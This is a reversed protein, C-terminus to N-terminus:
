CTSSSVSKLELEAFHWRSCINLATVLNVTQQSATEQESSQKDTELMAWCSSGTEHATPTALLVRFCALGPPAAGAVCSLQFPATTTPIHLLGHVTASDSVQRPLLGPATQSKGTCLLSPCAPSLGAPPHPTGEAQPTLAPAPHPLARQRRHTGRAVSSSSGPEEWFHEAFSCSPSPM